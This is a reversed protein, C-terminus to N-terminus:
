KGEVFDAIQDIDKESLQPFATMIAGFQQQLGKTYPDKAMFASPNHVWAYLQKRDAWPGRSTFGRLAPGTLAKDLSHCAACNAAFLTKGPSAPAEAAAKVPTVAGAAPAAPHIVSTKLLSLTAWAALLLVAALFIHKM